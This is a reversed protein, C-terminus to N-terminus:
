ARGLRAPAGGDRHRREVLLNTFDCCRTTPSGGSRARTPRHDRGADLATIMDDVPQARRREVLSQFHEHLAVQAMFSVDNIMGVGPEIHFVQDIHTVCRKASTTPCASAARLHGHSPLLAGFDQVYDFGGSGSSRISCSRASTM